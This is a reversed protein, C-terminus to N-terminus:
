LAVLGDLPNGHLLAGPLAGAMWVMARVTWAAQPLPRRKCQGQVGQAHAHHRHAADRQRLVGPCLSCAVPHLCEVNRSARQLAHQVAQAPIRAHEDGKARAQGFSQAARTRAATVAHFVCQGLGQSAGSQHGHRSCAASERQPRGGRRARGSGAGRGQGGHRDRGLCRAASRRFSGAAVRGSAGAVGGRRQAQRQFFCRLRDTDDRSLLEIVLRHLRNLFDEVVRGADRDRLEVALAEGEVRAAEADVVQLVVAHGRLVGRLVTGAFGLDIRDDVVADLDHAAGGAQERTGAIRRRRDVQHAFARVALDEGALERGAGARPVVVASRCVQRCRERLVAADPTAEHDGLFVLLRVDVVVAAFAAREIARNRDVERGGGLQIHAHAVLTATGLAHGIASERQHVAVARGDVPAAQAARERDPRAPRALFGVAGVRKGFQRVLPAIAPLGRCQGHVAPLLDAAVCPKEWPAKWVSCRSQHAAVGRADIEGTLAILATQIDAACAREVSEVPRVLRSESEAVRALLHIEVADTCGICHRRDAQEVPGVVGLGVQPM